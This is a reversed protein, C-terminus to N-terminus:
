EDGEEDEPEDEGKDEPDGDGPQDDGHSGGRHRRELRPYEANVDKPDVVVEYESDNCM